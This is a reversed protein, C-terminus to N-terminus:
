KKINKILYLILIFQFPLHSLHNFIKFILKSKVKQFVNKNAFLVLSM